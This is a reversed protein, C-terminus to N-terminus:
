SECTLEWFVFSNLNPPVVSKIYHIASIIDYLNACNVLYVIADVSIQNVCNDIFSAHCKVVKEFRPFDCASLTSLIFRSRGARILLHEKELSFEIATEGPLTRCIDLLKRAPVTIEGAEAPEKLTLRSVLEVEADSGTMSLQHTKVDLLLNSLIPYTQQRRDTAGAVVQLPIIFDQQQVSFKM